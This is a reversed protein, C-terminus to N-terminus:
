ELAAIAPRNRAESAQIRLNAQVRMTDAAAKIGAVDTSTKYKLNMEYVRLMADQDRDASRQAMDNQHKAWDQDLKRTENQVKPDPPPEAPEQTGEAPPQAPDKFFLNPNKFGISSLLRSLTNHYEKPGCLANDPGAVGMIQEQKGLVQLLAAIKEQETGGLAVNVTVDMDAKYARPDVEVWKGRLNVMRSKRQNQHILRLIGRFMRKFGTEAMIRVILEQVEHSKSFQNAAATASMNQLSEPNLGQSTKSMGTRSERVEDLYALMPFSAPGVFTKTLEKINEVSSTARIFGSRETNLVDGINIGQGIVTRPVVAEALSDLTARVVGSKTKQIDMARDAMSQAAIASTHPEPDCPFEAFPHDEVLEHHLIMKGPGAVCFKHLEAIGDRDADLYTFAEAYYIPQQSEDLPQDERTTTSVPQRALRESNDRWDSTGRAEELREKDYGMAVLESFPVDRGHGMTRFEYPGFGRADSNIFFEDLPCAVIRVGDSPKKIKLRVNALQTEPNFEGAVVDAEAGSQQLEDLLMLMQDIGLGTYDSVSVEVRRDWWYKAIGCKRALLDKVLSHLILFGPNDKTFVHNVYDTAQEAMAVDEPGSPAYEVVHEPGFFIRMIGPVISNVTDAVDRSIFQSRGEEEDGFPEGRLYQTAKIRDPAIDSEIYDVAAEIEAAIIPQLEDDTMEEGDGANPDGSEANLEAEVQAMEQQRAFEMMEPPVYEDVMAM